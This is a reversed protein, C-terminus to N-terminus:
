HRALFEFLRGLSKQHTEPVYNLVWDVDVDFGHTADPYLHMEVEGGKQMQLEALKACPEPATTEDKGALLMLVPIDTRWGDGFGTGFGCYPYWAIAGQVGQMSNAIDTDLSPAAGDPIALAELVTWAGHSFGQLFMRKHDIDPITRAHELAVLVDGAREGGQFDTGACAEGIDIDRGTFSDVELVAYGADALIQARPLIYGTMGGCGHFSVILPHPGDGEPMLLQLHPKLISLVQVPSQTDYFLAARFYLTFAIVAIAPSALLLWLLRKLVKKQAPNM